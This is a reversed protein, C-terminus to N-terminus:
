KSSLDPNTLVAIIGTAVLVGIAGLLIGFAVTLPTRWSKETNLVSKNKKVYKLHELGPFCIWILVPVILMLPEVAESFVSISSLFYSTIPLTLYYALCVYFWRLSSSAKDPRELVEWNKSFMYTGLIPTLLVSWGIIKRPDWIEKKERQKM